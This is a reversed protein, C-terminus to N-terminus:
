AKYHEKFYEDCWLCVDGLENIRSQVFEKTLGNKLGLMQPAGKNLVQFEDIERHQNLLDMVSAERVDGLDIATTPCCPYLKTLQIHVEQNDTDDDLFGIAGSWMACFNHKPNKNHLNNDLARGRAWNAQLWFDENAGWLSYLPVDKRKSDAPKMGASEFLKKLKEAHLGKNKHYRDISAIDIKNVGADLISKLKKETLLDGNTQLWIEADDRYKNKLNEIISILKPMETTPEGGSLIVRKTQSPLNPIVKLLEELEISEGKPGSNNYCHDCFDNCKLTFVWYVSEM